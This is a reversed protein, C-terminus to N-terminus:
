GVEFTVTEDAKVAVGAQDVGRLRKAESQGRVIEGEATVVDEGVDRRDPRTQADADGMPVIVERLLIIQTPDPLQPNDNEPNNDLDLLIFLTADSDSDYPDLGAVTPQVIINLIDEQAVGRPFSPEIVVVQPPVSLPNSGPEGVNIIVRTSTSGETLAFVSVPANVGDAIEGRLYYTGQSVM